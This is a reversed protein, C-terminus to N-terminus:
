RAAQAAPSTFAKLKPDPVKAEEKVGSFVFKEGYFSAYRLVLGAPRLLEGLAVEQEPTLGPFFVEAFLYEEGPKLCYGPSPVSSSKLVYPLKRALCRKLMEEVPDDAEIKKRELNVKLEEILAPGLGSNIFEYSISVGEKSRGKKQRSVVYPRVSLRNHKRTTRAEWLTLGFALLSVIFAAVEM